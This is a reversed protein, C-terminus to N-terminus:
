AAAALRDSGAEGVGVLLGEVRWSIATAWIRRVRPPCRPSAPAMQVGAAGQARAAAAHRMRGTMLSFSVTAVASWGPQRCRGGPRGPRPWSSSRRRAQHQQGVDVAEIGAVRDPAIALPRIRAALHGRDCGVDQGHRALRRQPSNADPPMTVLSAFRGADGSEPPQLMSIASPRRQGDRHGRNASPARQVQNVQGLDFAAPGCALLQIAPLRSARHARNVMSAPALRPRRQFPALAQQRGAHVATSGALELSAVRDSTRSGSPGRPRARVSAGIGRVVIRFADQAVLATFDFRNESVTPALFKDM